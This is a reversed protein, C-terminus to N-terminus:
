EVETCIQHYYCRLRAREDAQEAEWLMTKVVLWCVLVLMACVVVGAVFDGLRSDRRRYM